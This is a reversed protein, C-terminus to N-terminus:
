KRALVQNLRIEEFLKNILNDGNSTKIKNYSTMKRAPTAGPVNYDPIRPLKFPTDINVEPRTFIRQTSNIKLLERCNQLDSLSNMVYFKYVNNGSVVDTQKHMRDYVIIVDYAPEHQLIDTLIIPNPETAVFKALKSVCNDKNNVFYESNAIILDKYCNFIETNSDYIITKVKRTNNNSDKRIRILEPLIKIFTNMYPIYSVEKFYLVIQVKCNILSTKIENYSKITPTSVSTEEFEKAQARLADIEKKNDNLAQNLTFKEDRLKNCREKFEDVKEELSKVEDKLSTLKAVLEKSNTLEAQKKLYDVTTVMNELSPMHQSLFTKFGETNNENVLSEIGIILTDLESINVIKSDVFSEVEDYSPTRALLREMYSATLIDMSQIMYVDYSNYCILLSALPFFSTCKGGVDILVVRLGRALIEKLRTYYLALKDNLEEDAIVVLIDGPIKLDTSNIDVSKFGPMKSNVIYKEMNIGGQKVKNNLM